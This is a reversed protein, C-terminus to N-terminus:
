EEALLEDIFKKYKEPTFANKPLSRNNKAGAEERAKYIEELSINRPIKLIQGAYLKKPDRIQNRNYKYLLPWYYGDNYIFPYSSIEELTENEKVTYFSPYRKEIKFRVDEITKQRKKKEVPREEPKKSEIILEEKAKRQKQEEEEAKKREEIKKIVELRKEEIERKKADLSEIITKIKYNSYLLFRQAEDINREREIDDLKTWINRIQDWEEPLYEPLDQYYLNEIDAKTKKLEEEPFKACSFLLAVLLLGFLFRM